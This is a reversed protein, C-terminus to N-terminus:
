VVVHDVQQQQQQQQQQQHVKSIMRELETIISHDAEYQGTRLLEDRERQVLLQDPALPLLFASPLALLCGYEVVCRCDFFSQAAAM